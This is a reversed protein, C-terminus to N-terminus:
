KGVYFDGEVNMTITPMEAAKINMCPVIMAVVILMGLVFKLSKKM